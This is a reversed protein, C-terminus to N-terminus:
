DSCSGPVIKRVDITQDAFGPLASEIEITANNCDDLTMEIAGFFESQVDQSRFRGGFDAGQTINIEPFVLTDGFRDGLGLMWAQKGDSYTYFTLM